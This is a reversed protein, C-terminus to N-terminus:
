SPKYPTHTHTHTNPPPSPLAYAWKWGNREKLFSSILIEKNGNDTIAWIEPLLMRNSFPHEEGLFKFACYPVFSGLALGPWESRWGLGRMLCWERGRGIAEPSSFWPEQADWLIVLCGPVPLLNYRCGMVVVMGTRAVVTNGNFWHCCLRSYSKCSSRPIFANKPGGWPEGWLEKRNSRVRWTAWKGEEESLVWRTKRMWLGTKWTPVVTVARWFLASYLNREMGRGWAGGVGRREPFAPNWVAHQRKLIFRIASAPSGARLRQTNIVCLLTLSPEM